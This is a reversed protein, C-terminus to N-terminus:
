TGSQLPFPKITQILVVTGLRESLGMIPIVIVSTGDALPTVTIKDQALSIDSHAERFSTDLYKRDTSVKVMGAPDVLFAVKFKDKRVLEVLYEDIQQVNNSMLEKRVAWSLPLSFLEIDERQMDRYVTTAKGIFLVQEQLQKERLRMAEREGSYRFYFYGGALAVVLLLVLMVLIRTFLSPSKVPSDSQEM